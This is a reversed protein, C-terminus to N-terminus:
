SEGGEEIRHLFLIVENMKTQGFIDQYTEEIMVKDKLIKTVKVDNKGVWTGKKLFYGKGVSDEVLAINGEPTSIIAVLKLQSVEYNQLPTQPVTKSSAKVPTLQIFPKFPDPKGAPNYTYEGQEPKKDEQKESGKVPEGKKKEASLPKGKQTITPPSVGEGCGPLFFLIAILLPLIPYPKPSGV